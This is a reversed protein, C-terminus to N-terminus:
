RTVRRRRRSLVVGDVRKAKVLQRALSVLAEFDANQEARITEVLGDLEEGTEWPARSEVDRVIHEIQDFTYGPYGQARLVECASGVDAIRQQRLRELFEMLYAPPREEHRAKVLAYAQRWAEPVDGTRLIRFVGRVDAVLKRAEVVDPSVALESESVLTEARDLDLMSLASRFSAVFQAIRCENVFRAVEAESGLGALGQATAIAEEINGAELHARAVGMAEIFDFRAVMFRNEPAADEHRRLFEVAVRVSELTSSMNERGDLATEIEDRYQGSLAILAQRRIHNSQVQTRRSFSLGDLLELADKYRKASLADRAKPLQNEVLTKHDRVQTYHTILATFERHESGELRDLLGRAEAIIADYDQVLEFQDIRSLARRREAVLAVRRFAEDHALYAECLALAREPQSAVLRTATALASDRQVRFQLDRRHGM